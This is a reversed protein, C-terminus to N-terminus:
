ATLNQGWMAEQMTKPAQQPSAQGTARLVTGGGGASQRVTSAVRKILDYQTKVVAVWRSPPVDKMIDPLLPLLQAEVAPYDMDSAQLQKCLADVKQLGDNHAREAQQQSQQAEQQQSRQQQTHQEALRRRALEMAHPETIQMEDVAKRLDPHDSLADVGPLPQGMILSIQRRQEDLVKLASQFDGRNIMGIVGAAQEFQERKVGHQAFTEKVYSVQEDLEQVKGTLERNTNALRQFREQAKPALGEPMSLIDEEGEIKQPKIPEATKAVPAPSGDALKGAFRGKEDRAMGASEQAPELGQTIAELMTKPAEPAEPEPPAEVVPADIAGGTSGEDEFPKCLRRFLHRIIM